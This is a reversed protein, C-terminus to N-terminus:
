ANWMKVEGPQGSGPFYPPNSCTALKTGDPSYAVVAIGGERPGNLSLLEKGNEADWVKIQNNLHTSKADDWVGVAGALRKGDPSWALQGVRAPHTPISLLELGTSADRVVVSRKASPGILDQSVAVVRKGDPSFLVSRVINSDAGLRRAEPSTTPDW